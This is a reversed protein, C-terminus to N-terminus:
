REDTMKRIEQVALTQLDALKTTISDEIFDPERVRFERGKKFDAREEVAGFFREKDELLGAVTGVGEKNRLLTM